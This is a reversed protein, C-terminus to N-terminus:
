LIAFSIGGLFDDILSPMNRKKFLRIKLASSICAKQGRWFVNGVGV